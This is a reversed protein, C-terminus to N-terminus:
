EFICLARRNGKEPYSDAGSETVSVIEGPEIERVFSAGIHDIACSESAIVWGNNVTGLCLPRVGLPDRVGFLSDKTMITLSYAGHLRHMAYRIKDVWNKEPSSLILNAIVM